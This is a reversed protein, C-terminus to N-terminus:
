HEKNGLFGMQAVLCHASLCHKTLGDRGGVGAPVDVVAALALWRSKVSQLHHATPDPATVRLYVVGKAAAGVCWM